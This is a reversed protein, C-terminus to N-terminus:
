KTATQLVTKRGDAGLRRPKGGRRSPECKTPVQTACGHQNSRSRTGRHANVTEPASGAVRINIAANLDRDMVLGCGDCKYVREALSLKAKVRGCKSCTKSSAFWRDVIHLAAGTRATKYELQRRFEGFAADSVAKALHHNKVMGATNLDEISIDSYTSALWTTAKHIADSRQNAVRAHLRAVKARAKARRKSGMTKRSLAKQAQKLRRESAALARPNEIVTGDSLTALTKVGLDIGVAGGRPPKAVPKDDREVTLSAYWRGARKSVTMRLVRAGGVREAVNEMCHVRGIKPLRLAKPEGHILGFSGTTYAFRPVTRDKSKFRPFGVRRGKRVGKRSKAWNSLGKALAELGSSYAEKSNEGWWIVGDDSVALADKNANWWKRLSYFSWEPKAGADLAEKVRALGANFAFRAAGAHSLLLREQAPSPDLAVKVAALVM